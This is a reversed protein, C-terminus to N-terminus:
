RQADWGLEDVGHQGVIRREGISQACRDGAIRHHRRGVQREIRRRRRRRADLVLEHAPEAVTLRHEDLGDRPRRRLARRPQVVHRDCRVPADVSSRGRHATARSATGSRRRLEVAAQAPEGVRRQQLARHQGVARRHGDGDDVRHHRQEVRRDLWSAVGATWPRACQHGLDRGHPESEFGIPARQDDGRGVETDGIGVDSDNRACNAPSCGPCALELRQGRDGPEGVRHEDVALRHGDIEGVHRRDVQGLAGSGDVGGLKRMASTDISAAPASMRAVLLPVLRQARRERGADAVRAGLANISPRRRRGRRSNARRDNGGSGNENVTPPRSAVIGSADSSCRRWATSPRPEM